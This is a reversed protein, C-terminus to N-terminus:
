KTKKRVSVALAASTVVTAAAKSILQKGQPTNAANKALNIALKGEPRKTFDNVFKQGDKYPSTGKNLRSVQQELNM